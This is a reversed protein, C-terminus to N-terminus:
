STTSGAQREVLVRNDLNGLFDDTTLLGRQKTTYNATVVFPVRWLWRRYSYGGSPTEAFTVVRDVKGQLKEQHHVLFGFDRVDDLVVGDHVNRDFARMGDPFHDLTGVDLQLPNQFLSKAWETKRTLSPGLVVLFPYM